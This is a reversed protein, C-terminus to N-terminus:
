TYTSLAGANIVSSLVIGAATFAAARRFISKKM